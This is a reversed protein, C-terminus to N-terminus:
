FGIIIAYDVEIKNKRIKTFKCNRINQNYIVKTKTMITLHNLFNLFLFLTAVKTISYKLMQM